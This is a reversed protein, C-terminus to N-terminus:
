ANFYAELEQYLRGVHFGDLVAHNAHIAFPLMIKGNDEFYKGITFMPILNDDPSQISLRASTFSLWPMASIHFINKKSLEKQEFPKNGYELNDANYNKLFTDADYSFETWLLTFMEQETHFVTYCPHITDYYGLNGQEDKAMKFEM